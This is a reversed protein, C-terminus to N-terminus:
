KVKQSEMKKRSRRTRRGERKGWWVYSLGKAVPSSVILAEKGLSSQSSISM